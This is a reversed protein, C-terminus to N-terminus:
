HAHASAMCTHMIVTWLVFRVPAAVLRSGQCINYAMHPVARLTERATCGGGASLALAALVQDSYFPRQLLQLGV